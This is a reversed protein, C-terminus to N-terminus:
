TLDPMYTYQTSFGSNGGSFDGNVILNTTPNSFVKLTYTTTQSVSVTPTLDADDFFGDTGSWEFGFYSGSINGNLVIDTEECITIDQPVTITFGCNQGKLNIIGMVLLIFICYRLM